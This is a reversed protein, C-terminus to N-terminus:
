SAHSIHGHDTDGVVHHRPWMGIERGRINQGRGQGLRRRSSKVLSKDLGLQRRAHTAAHGRRVIRIDKIVHGLHNRTHIGTGHCVGHDTDQFPNGVRRDRVLLHLPGSRSQEVVPFLREVITLINRDAKRVPGRLAIPSQVKEIAVAEFGGRSFVHLANGLSVQLRSISREAGEEGCGLRRTGVDGSSRVDGGHDAVILSPGCDRHPFFEIHGWLVDVGARLARRQLAAHFHDCQRFLGRPAM